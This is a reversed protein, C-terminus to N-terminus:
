KISGAKMWDPILEDLNKIPRPSPGKRLLKPKTGIYLTSEWKEHPPVIIGYRWKLWEHTEELDAKRKNTYRQIQRQTAKRDPQLYIFKAIKLPLSVRAPPKRNRIHLPMDLRPPNFGAERHIQYMIQERLNQLKDSQYRGKRSYEIFHKRFLDRLDKHLVAKTDANIIPLRQIVERALKKILMKKVPEYQFPDTIEALIDYALFTLYDYPPGVPRMKEFM